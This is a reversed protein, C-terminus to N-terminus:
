IKRLYAIMEYQKRLKQDYLFQSWDHDTLYFLHTNQVAWISTFCRGMRVDRLNKRSQDLPTELALEGFYSGGQLEAFIVEVPEGNLDERIPLDEDSM